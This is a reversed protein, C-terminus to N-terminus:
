DEISTKNRIENLEYEQTPDFKKITPFVFSAKLSIPGYLNDAKDKFLIFYGLPADDYNRITYKGHIGFSITQNPLLNKTAGEGGILYYDGIQKIMTAQTLSDIKRQFTFGLQWDLLNISATNQITVHADFEDETAKDLIFAVKIQGPSLAIPEAFSQTTFNIFLFLFFFYYM